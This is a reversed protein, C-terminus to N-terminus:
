MRCVKNLLLTAQDIDTRLIDVDVAHKKATIAAVYHNFSSWWICFQQLSIQIEKIAAVVLFGNSAFDSLPIRSVYFLRQCLCTKGNTAGKAAFLPKCM